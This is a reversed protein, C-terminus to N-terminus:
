APPIFTSFSETGVISGGVGGLDAELGVSFIAEHPGDEWVEYKATMALEDWGNISPMRDPKLYTYADSVGIAFRPFIEKDFEFGTDIETTKPGTNMVYTIEPLALEDVAFPDDTALTPPFFRNGLIGHACVKKAPVLAACAVAVVLIAANKTYRM